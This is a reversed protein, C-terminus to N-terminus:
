VKAPRSLYGLASKPTEGCFTKFEKIFHAQDYYSDYYLREASNAKSELQARLYNQFRVVRIFSKINHGIYFDFLRRLHRPSVGVSKHIDKQINISGSKKLIIMLAEYVQNDFRQDIQLLNKLFYKDFLHRFDSISSGPQISEILFKATKLHVSDIGEVSNSIESANVSFLYSFMGPLFRVGAYHFSAGLLYTTCKDYVGMVYNEKPNNLNVIIDICGDSAIKCSFDDSLPQCSKIEWYCWIFSQLPLDPLAELVLINENSQGQPQVPHFVQRIENEIKM